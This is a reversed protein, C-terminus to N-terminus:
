EMHDQVESTSEFEGCFQAVTATLSVLRTPRIGHLVHVLAPCRCPTRDLAIRQERVHGHAVIEGKRQLHESDVRLVAVGPQPAGKGTSVVTEIGPRPGHTM